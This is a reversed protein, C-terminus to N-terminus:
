TSVINPFYLRSPDNCAHIELRNIRVSCQVQKARAHATYFIPCTESHSKQDEPRNDIRHQLRVIQM